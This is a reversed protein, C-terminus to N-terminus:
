QLTFTVTITTIVEIPEGNLMTPRYKWQKVADLAAQTLLLHGSVVRLSDISGDKGIIAELVVVGQIRTQRAIAPYVPNVQHILNAAQVNGGQRVPAARIVPPAPPPPPPPPPALVETPQNALGVLISTVSGNGASPPFSFNPQVPEDVYVIRAPISEPATLINADAQTYKQVRPQASFVEIPKPPEVRPLLLSMDIPPITLAQTQLLPILVLVSVTVIHAIASAVVPIPKRTTKSGKSEFLSDELM